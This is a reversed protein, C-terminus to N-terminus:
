ELLDAPSPTSVKKVVESQNFTLSPHIPKCKQLLLNNACTQKTKDPNLQIKWQHTWEPIISLDRNLQDAAIAEDYVITFLLTDDAFLKAESSVDDVLDNIYILFFLHGRVFGQPVGATM